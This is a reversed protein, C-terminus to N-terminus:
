NATHELLKPVSRLIGSAQIASYASDSYPELNVREGTESRGRGKPDVLPLLRDASPCIGDLRDIMRKKGFRRERM